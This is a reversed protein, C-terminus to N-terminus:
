SSCSARTIAIWVCLDSIRLISNASYARCAANSTRDPLNFGFDATSIM